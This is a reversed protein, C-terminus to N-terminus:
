FLRGTSGSSSGTLGGLGGMMGGMGGMMGGMGGMGSNQGNNNKSQELQKKEWEEYLKKLRSAEKDELMQILNEMTMPKFVKSMDIDIEIDWNAKTAFIDEGNDNIFMEAREPQLRNVVDGADWVGNGNTDEIIRIRIEGPSVFNITYKGSTVGTIEQQMKGSSDTQQIIYERNKEGKVTLVIKSFKEPDFTNFSSSISDNQYGMIDTMSQKPIYFRYKTNNEWKARVAYRGINLTDRVFHKEVETETPNKDDGSLKYLKVATSDFAVLPYDITIDFGKEPNIESSASSKYKFPNPKQPPTYERGEAEAQKREKEEKERAKQEEKSEILKWAVKIPETTQVLNRVSDHKYYTINGKITDPLSEAPVNLWINLTDKGKTRPDFIIKDSPISDLRISDIKPLATNFYLVIQKRDKRQAEVLRQGKFAKDTFMRFYLQPDASPYNRLSDFWIAFPQMTAPNYVSDLIGVLDTGPEYMQNDNKDGFAYIRYNIPKLNQAIFIGNNQARAIVDPKRNFITSDYDPTDPLSDAIFFWLFTRSVSDAKYSDATYGSCMLSDVTDGTSFVYRMANLPNGENNDRVASGLDIAYTTNEKLTDRITIVIGKGRTAILPMKKMQPSTYMEKNQDKLQVYENFEIYIKKEKFNTTFNGPTLVTIVPPITDKPGGDPTMISACRTLFADLFLLTVTVKLIMGSNKM